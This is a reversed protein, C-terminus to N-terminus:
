SLASGQGGDSDALFIGQSSVQGAPLCDFGFMNFNFSFKATIASEGTSEGDADHLSM